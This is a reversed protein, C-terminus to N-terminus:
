KESAIASKTEYISSADRRAGIPIVLQLPEPINIILILIIRDCRDLLVNPICDRHGEIPHCVHNTEPECSRLPKNTFRASSELWRRHIPTATDRHVVERGGHTAEGFELHVIGRRAASYRTITHLVSADADDQFCTTGCWDAGRVTEGHVADARVGRRRRSGDARMPVPPPAAVRGSALMGRRRRVRGASRRPTAAVQGSARRLAAAVRGASRRPSRECAAADGRSGYRIWLSCLSM